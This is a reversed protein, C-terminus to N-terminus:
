RDTAGPEQLEGLTRELARELSAFTEQVEGLPRELHRDLTRYADLLAPEADHAAQEGRPTLEVLYSRGDAPNAIRRALGAAVLREVNDRVTSAPTGSVVAIATPTVPGHERVHFLLALLFGPLGAPAATREVIQGVYQSITSAQLFLRRDPV